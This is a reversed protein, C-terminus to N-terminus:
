LRRQGKVGEHAYGGGSSTHLGGHCSGVKRTGRGRAAEAERKDDEQKRVEKDYKSRGRVPGDKGSGGGDDKGPKEM